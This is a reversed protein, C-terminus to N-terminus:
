LLANIVRGTSLPHPRQLNDIMTQYPDLGLCHFMTAHIDTPDIPDSTPYAAIRDSSGLLLGGHIGGGALLATQCSGWHDRGIDANIRPTRGFEGMM